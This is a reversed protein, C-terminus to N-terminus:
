RKTFPIGSRTAKPAWSPSKSFHAKDGGSRVGSHDRAAHWARSVSKTSSCTEKATDKKGWDFLGM